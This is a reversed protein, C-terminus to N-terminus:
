SALEPSRLSYSLSREPSGCCNCLGPEVFMGDCTAAWRSGCRDCLYFWVFDGADHLVAQFFEATAQMAGCEGPHEPLRESEFLSLQAVSERPQIM